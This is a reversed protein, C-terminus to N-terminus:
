FRIANTNREEKLPILPILEGIEDERIDATLSFRIRSTREPVTPPRVPLAYFGHRQLLEACLVTDASPGIILPVIHSASPCGYGKAQLAERLTRGGKAVTPQTGSPTVTFLSGDFVVDAPASSWMMRGGNSIM